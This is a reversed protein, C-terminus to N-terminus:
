FITCFIQQNVINFQCHEQMLKASVFTTGSVRELSYCFWSEGRSELPLRPKVIHRITQLISQTELTWIEVLELPGEIISPSLFSDLTKVKGEEGAM